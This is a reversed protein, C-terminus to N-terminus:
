IIEILGWKALQTAMLTMKGRDKKNNLVFLDNMTLGTRAHIQEFFAALEQITAYQDASDASLEIIRRAEDLEMCATLVTEASLISTAFSRFHLLPSPAKRMEPKAHRRKEALDTALEGYAKLVVGWDFREHADKRAAAGITKRRGADSLLLDLAAAADSVSIITRQAVNRLYDHHSLLRAANLDSLTMGLGPPPITSRCLFGTEGQRIFDRYGSWDSVVCPLGAAMAEIVTLGFTEQINDPLSLFVDCALFASVKDAEVPNELIHVKVGPIVAAALALMRLATEADAFWGAMVLHIHSKGEAAKAIAMLLPLHHAKTSEDFRGALLIAVDAENLGLKARTKQRRKDDSKFLDVDVGLPIIPLQLLSSPRSGIRLELYDAREELITEVARRAAASTCVLADFEQVPETLYSEIAAITECGALSHTLGIISWGAPNCVARRRAEMAIDPASWFLTGPEALGEPRARSLFVPNCGPSSAAVKKAMHDFDLQSDCYGYIVPKDQSRALARLFGENAVRRGFVQENQTDFAEPRYAVALQLM